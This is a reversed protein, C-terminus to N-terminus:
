RLKGYSDTTMYHDVVSKGVNEVDKSESGDSEHDDGKDTVDVITKAASNTNPSVGSGDLVFDNPFTFGDMFDDDFQYPAAFMPDSVPLELTQSSQSGVQATATSLTQLGESFQSMLAEMKQCLADMKQCRQDLIATARSMNMLRTVECHEHVFSSM